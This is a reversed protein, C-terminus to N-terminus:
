GYCNAIKIDENWDIQHNDSPAPSLASTDSDSIAPPFDYGLPCAPFPM